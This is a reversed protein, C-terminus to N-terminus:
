RRRGVPNLLKAQGIISLTRVSEEITALHQNPEASISSSWFRELQRQYINPLSRADSSWVKGSDVSLLNKIWDLVITRRDTVVTLIRKAPRRLFNLHLNVPTRNAELTLNAVDELEADIDLTGTNVLQATALELKGLLCQLYDLEHSLELLVGGGLASQASVSHRYDKEDRWDALHQGVEAQVSKIAGYKGEALEQRLFEFGEHHRLCYAVRIFNGSQRAAIEFSAISDACAALPKEILIPADSIEFVERAFALHSTAPSAIIALDIPFRNFAETVKPSVFDIDTQAEIQRGSASTQIIKCSPFAKKAACAHKRAISGAGVILINKPTLM